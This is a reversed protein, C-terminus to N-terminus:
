VGLIITTIVPTTTLTLQVSPNRGVETTDATVIEMAEGIFEVAGIGMYDVAIFEVEATGARAMFGMTTPAPVMSKCAATVLM